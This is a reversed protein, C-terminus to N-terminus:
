IQIWSQTNKTSHKVFRGEEAFEELIMKVSSRGEGCANCVAETDIGAEKDVSAAYLKTLANLIKVKQRPLSYTEGNWVYSTDIAVVGPLSNIYRIFEMDQEKWGAVMEHIGPKIVDNLTETTKKEEALMEKLKQLPVASPNRWITMNEQDNRIMRDLLEEIEGFTICKEEKVKKKTRSRRQEDTNDTM